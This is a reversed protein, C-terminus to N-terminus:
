VLLLRYLTTVENKRKGKSTKMYRRAIMDQKRAIPNNIDIVRLTSYNKRGYRDLGNTQLSSYMGTHEACLCDGYYLVLLSISASFLIASCSAMGILCVFLRHGSGIGWIPNAALSSISLFDEYICKLYESVTLLHQGWCGHLFCNM